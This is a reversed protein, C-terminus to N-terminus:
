RGLSALVAGKGQAKSPIPCAFCNSLNALSLWYLQNEILFSFINAHSLCGPAVSFPLFALAFVFSFAFM